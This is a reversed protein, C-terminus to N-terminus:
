LLGIYVLGSAYKVKIHSATAGQCNPWWNLPNIKTLDFDDENLEVANM